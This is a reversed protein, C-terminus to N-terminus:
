KLRDTSHSHQSNPTVKGSGQVLAKGANRKPPPPIGAGHAPSQVSNGNGMKISKKISSSPPEPEKHNSHHVQVANVGLGEGSKAARTSEHKSGLGNSDYSKNDKRSIHEM